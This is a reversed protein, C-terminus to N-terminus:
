RLNWAGAAEREEFGLWKMMIGALTQRMSGLPLQRQEPVQNTWL